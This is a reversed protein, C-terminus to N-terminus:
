GFVYEMLIKRLAAEHFILVCTCVIGGVCLLHRLPKRTEKYLYLILMAAIANLGGVLASGAVLGLSEYILLPFALSGVFTGFYDLALIRQASMEGGQQRALEMLIPLEAGSLLGVLIIVAHVFIWSPLWIFSNSFVNSPASGFVTERLFQDGGLILFPLVLGIFSLIGEIVFLLQPSKEKNWFLFGLAGMGMSFLYLGITISYRLITNGLIISLCQALMLEYVISCFSVTLTLAMIWRLRAKSSLETWATSAGDLM